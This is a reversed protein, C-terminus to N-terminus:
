PGSRAGHPRPLRRRRGRALQGTQTPPRAPGLGDAAGPGSDDVAHIAVRVRFDRGGPVRRVPGSRTAPGLARAALSRRSAWRTPELDTRSAAAGPGAALRCRPEGGPSRACDAPVMSSILGQLNPMAAFAHASRDRALALVRTAAPVSLVAIAAAVCAISGASVARGPRRRRGRRVAYAAHVLFMTAFLYQFYVAATALLAYAVADAARGHELWRVLMWFAGTAALLAFAYPRADGAAFAIPRFGAFIGAALLGTERDVLEAGLQYVFYAALGAALLSPLRLSIEGSGGLARELWVIAVYPVSQPFLRARTLIEGLGGDSAWWTGFEDLSLSSRLPVIWLRVLAALALGGLVFAARRVGSPSPSAGASDVPSTSPRM